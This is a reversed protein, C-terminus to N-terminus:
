LLTWYLLQPMNWCTFNVIAVCVRSFSFLWFFQHLCLLVLEPVVQALFINEEYVNDIPYDLDKQMIVVKSVNSNKVTVKTSCAYPDSCHDHCVQLVDDQGIQCMYTFHGLNDQFKLVVSSDQVKVSQTWTGWKSILVISQPFPKHMNSLLCVRVELHPCEYPILDHKM